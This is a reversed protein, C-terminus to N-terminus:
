HMFFDMCANRWESGVIMYIAYWPLMIMLSVVNINFIFMEQTKTLEEFGWRYTLQHISSHFATSPYLPVGNLCLCWHSLSVVVVRVFGSLRVDLWPLWVCFTCLTHSQHGPIDACASRSASLLHSTAQAPLPPHPSAPSPSPSPRGIPTPKRQLLHFSEPILCHCTALPLHM